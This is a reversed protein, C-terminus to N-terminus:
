LLSSFDKDEGVNGTGYLATLSLLFDAHLLFSANKGLTAFPLIDPLFFVLNRM